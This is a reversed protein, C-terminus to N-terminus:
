ENRVEQKLSKLDYITDVCLKGKPLSEKGKCNCTKCPEFADPHVQCHEMTIAGLKTFIPGSNDNGFAIVEGDTKNIIASLLAGGIGKGQWSERIAWGGFEHKGDPWIYTIAAAGVVQESARAVALLGQAAIAQLKELDVQVMLGREAFTNIISAAALLLLEESESPFTIACKETKEKM